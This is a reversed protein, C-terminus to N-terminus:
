NYCFLTMYNVYFAPSRKQDVDFLRELDNKKFWPTNFYPHEVDFIKFGLDRLCRNLSDNSFFRIHTSDHLMRYDEGYRRAMASDFDPTRCIFVGNPKLIKRIIKLANIPDEM